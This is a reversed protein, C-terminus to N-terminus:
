KMLLEMYMLFLVKVGFLVKVSTNDSVDEKGRERERFSIERNELDIQSHREVVTEKRAVECAIEPM